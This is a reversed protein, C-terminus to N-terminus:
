NIAGPDSIYAIKKSAFEDELKNILGEISTPNSKYINALQQIYPNEFVAKKPDKPDKIKLSYLQKVDRININKLEDLKGDKYVKIIENTFVAQHNLEFAKWSEQFQIVGMKGAIARNSSETTTPLSINKNKGILVDAIREGVGAARPEFNKPKPPDIM